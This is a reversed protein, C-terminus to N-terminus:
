HLGFWSYSFIKPLLLKSSYDRIRLMHLTFSLFIEQFHCKTHCLLVSDTKGSLECCHTNHIIQCTDRPVKGERYTKVKRFKNSSNLIMLPREMKRFQPSVERHSALPASHLRPYRCIKPSTLQVFKKERRKFICWVHQRKKPLEKQDPQHESGGRGKSQLGYRSDWQWLLRPRPDCPWPRLLRRWFFNRTKKM